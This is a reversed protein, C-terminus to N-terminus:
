ADGLINAEVCDLSVRWQDFSAQLLVLFFNDLVRVLWSMALFPHRRWARNTLEKTFCLGQFHLAGCKEPPRKEGIRPALRTQELTWTSDASIVGCGFVPTRKKQPLNTADLTGETNCPLFVFLLLHTDNKKQPDGFPPKGKSKWKFGVLLPHWSFVYSGGLQTLKRKPPERIGFDVNM